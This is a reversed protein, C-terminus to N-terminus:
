YNSTKQCILHAKTLSSGLFLNPMLHPNATLSESFFPFQSM